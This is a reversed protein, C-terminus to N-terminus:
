MVTVFLHCVDASQPIVSMANAECLAMSYKLELVDFEIESHAVLVCVIALLSLISTFSQKM